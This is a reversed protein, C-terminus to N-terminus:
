SAAEGSAQSEELSKLGLLFLEPRPDPLGAKLDWGQAFVRWEQM